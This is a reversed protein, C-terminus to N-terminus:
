ILTVSANLPNLLLSSWPCFNKKKVIAFFLCFYDDLPTRLFNAFNVPFCRDLTEKQILTLPRLNGAKNFFLSQCLQKGTFKAFNRLVGKEISCWQHSSTLFVKLFLRNICSFDGGKSFRFSYLWIHDLCCTLTSLVLQACYVLSFM